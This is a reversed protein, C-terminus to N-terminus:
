MDEVIEVADKVLQQCLTENLKNDAIAKRGEPTGIDYGLLERCVITSHLSTFREAFERVRAYMEQKEQRIDGGIRAYKLGLVMFAGTVAGCTEAMRGMGGGFGAAIKLAIEREIGLEEAFTFFVAQSCAYGEKM